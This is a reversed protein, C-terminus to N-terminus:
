DINSDWTAVRVGGAEGPRQAVNVTASLARAHAPHIYRTCVRRACICTCTCMCVCVCVCVCLRGSACALVCASARSAPRRSPIKPSPIKRHGRRTWPRSSAPTPASAPGPRGPLACWACASRRSPPPVSESVGAITSIRLDLGGDLHGMANLVPQMVLTHGARPTCDLAASRAASRVRPAKRAGDQRSPLEVLM